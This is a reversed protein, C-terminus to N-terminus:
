YSTISSLQSLLFVAILFVSMQKTGKKKKKNKSATKKFYELFAHMNLIFITKYMFSAILLLLGSFGRGIPKHRADMRRMFSCIETYTVWRGPHALLVVDQLGFIAPLQQAWAISARWLTMLKHREGKIQRSIQM